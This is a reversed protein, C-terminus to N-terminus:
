NETIGARCKVEDIIALAQKESFNEVKMRYVEGNNDIFKICPVKGGHLGTCDDDVQCPMLYSISTLGDYKIVTKSFPVDRTVYEKPIVFYNNYFVVKKNSLVIGMASWVLVLGVISIIGVVIISCVFAAISSAMFIVTLIVAVLWYLQIAKGNAYIVKRKNIKM